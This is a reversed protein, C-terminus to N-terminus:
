PASADDSYAERLRKLAEDLTLDPAVGEPVAKM